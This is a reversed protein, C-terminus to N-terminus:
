TYEKRPLIPCEKLLSFDKFLIKLSFTFAAFNTTSTNESSYTLDLIQQWCTFIVYKKKKLLM